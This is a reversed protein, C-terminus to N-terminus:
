SRGVEVIVPVTVVNSAHQFQAWLYYTGPQPFTYIFQIDPGYNPPTVLAASTAPAVMVGAAHIHGYIAQDASRAILHGSMGLWLEIDTVPKGDQSINLALTTQQGALIPQLSSTVNITLDGAVHTGLSTTETTTQAETTAAQGQVEFHREIIQTGSNIREIEIYATYRGPQALILPVMFRGIATSGPHIHTFSTNNDNILVLHMLADHHPALDDIPLGTSGDSLDLTLTFPQGAQPMIPETQLSANAHPRGLIPTTTTAQAQSVVQQIGLVGAVILCGFLLYGFVQEGRASVSGGRGSAIAGLALRSIVLLVASGLAIALPITEPALPTVVISFPIRARGSGLAGSAQVDLEWDGARSAVLETYYIQTGSFTKVEAVPADNLPFGRPVAQIHITAEGIEGHPAVVLYLPGPVSAPMEVTVTLEYPGVLQTFSQIPSLHGGHAEANSPIIAILMFLILTLHRLRM